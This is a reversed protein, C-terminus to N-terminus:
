DREEVTMAMFYFLYRWSDLFYYRNPYIASVHMNLIKAKKGEMNNDRIIINNKNRIEKFGLVRYTNYRVVLITYDCANFGLPCDEYSILLIPAFM